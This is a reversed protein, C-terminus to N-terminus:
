ELPCAFNPKRPFNIETSCTLPFKKREKRGGEREEEMGEEGRGGGRRGKRRVILVTCSVRDRLKPLQFACLRIQSEFVGARYPKVAQGKPNNEQNQGM